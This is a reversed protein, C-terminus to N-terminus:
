SAAERSQRAIQASGAFILDAHAECFVTRAVARAAAGTARVFAIRQALELGLAVGAVHALERTFTPDERVAICAMCTECTANM